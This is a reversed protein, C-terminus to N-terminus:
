RFPSPPLEEVVTVETPRSRSKVGRALFPPPSVRCRRHSLAFPAWQASAATLGFFHLNGPLLPFNSIEAPDESRYLFRIRPKLDTRKRNRERERERERAGRSNFQFHKAVKAGGCM